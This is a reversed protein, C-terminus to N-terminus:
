LLSSGRPRRGSHHRSNMEIYRRFGEEGMTQHRADYTGSDHNYRSSTSFIVFAGKMYRAVRRATGPLEDGEIEGRYEWRRVDDYFGPEVETLEERFKDGVDEYVGTPDVDDAELRLYNWEAAGGFSEFVLKRPRVLSVGMAHIEIFGEEAARVVRTITNGGGDPYFMHNLGSAKGAQNLVTLILDIDTWVASQPSGLPFLLQLLEEWELANRRDFDSIIDLWDSLRAGVVRMSPRILPDNDTCDFLLQDLKTLYLKGDLYNKLAVGSSVSYQGDFGLNVGTLAIWLSKAFSYVDAPKGDAKSAHRRMEPAMTFKAGVDRRPPTLDPRTPYKVLGFDSLCLRGDLALINEPKIDRHSIQRDHLEAVTDALQRFHTVIAEPSKGALFTASPIALPMAYWPFSEGAGQEPLHHKILPVLGDIDANETIVHVEHRFRQYTVDDLQRLFKIAVLGGRSDSARWVDANGGGGIEEALTWYGIIAGAQPPRRKKGM